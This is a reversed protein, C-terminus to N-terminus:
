FKATKSLRSNPQMFYQPLINIKKGDSNQICIQIYYICLAYQLEIKDISISAQLAEVVIDTLYTIQIYIAIINDHYTYIRTCSHKQHRLVDLLWVSAWETWSNQRLTLIIVITTILLYTPEFYSLLFLYRFLKILIYILGVTDLWVTM